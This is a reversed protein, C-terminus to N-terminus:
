PMFLNECCPCHESYLLIAVNEYKLGLPYGTTHDFIWDGDSGRLLGRDAGGNNRYNSFDEDNDFKPEVLAHYLNHDSDFDEVDEYKEVAKLFTAATVSFSGCVGCLLKDSFNIARRATTQLLQEWSSESMLLLSDEDRNFVYDDDVEAVIKIRFYKM